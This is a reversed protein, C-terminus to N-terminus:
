NLLFRTVYGEIIAAIFIFPTIVFIFTFFTEKLQERLLPLVKKNRRFKNVIKGVIIKNIKGGYITAIIFVSLELISHPLFGLVITKFLSMGVKQALGFAVGFAISSGIILVNYLFPIPIFSLILIQVCVIWNNKFLQITGEWYSDKDSAVSDAKTVKGFESVVKKFDLNFFHLALYMALYALFITVLIILWYRWFSKKHQIWIKKLLTVEKLFLSNLKSTM